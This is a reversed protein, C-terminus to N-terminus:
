AHARGLEAKRLAHILRMPDDTLVPFVWYNHLRNGSAPLVVSDGLKRRLSEGMRASRALSGEQWRKLRRELVALMAGPMRKRIKRNSGLSAVNRVADSVPDEYDKGLMRCLRFLLGFVPPLLVVKLGMFKLVRKGYAGAPQVPYTDQIVGMKGRLGADRVRLIAGGLATATKLPGFSFM